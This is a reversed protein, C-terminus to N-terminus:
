MGPSQSPKVSAAAGSPVTAAIVSAKQEEDTGEKDALVDDLRAEIGAVAQSLLSGWRSKVPAAM